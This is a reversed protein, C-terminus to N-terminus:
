AQFLQFLTKVVIYFTILLPVYERNIPLFYRKILKWCVMTHELWDSWIFANDFNDAVHNSLLKEMFVSNTKVPKIQNTASIKLSVGTLFFKRLAVILISFAHAEYSPLTKLNESPFLKSTYSGNSLFGTMVIYSELSLPLNLDVLFRRILTRLNPHPLSDIGLFNKILVVNLSLNKACPLERPHLRISDEGPLIVWESPLYKIPDFFSIHGLKIWQLIDCVYYDLNMIRFTLIILALAKSMTMKDVSIDSVHKLLPKLDEKKTLNKIVQSRNSFSSFQLHRQDVDELNEEPCISDSSARPSDHTINESLEEINILARRVKQFHLRLSSRLKKVPPGILEKNYLDVAMHDSEQLRMEPEYNEADSSGDGISDIDAMETDETKHVEILTNKELIDTGPFEPITCLSLRDVSQGVSGEVSGEVTEEMSNPLEASTDLNEKQKIKVWYFSRNISLDATAALPRPTYERYKPRAVKELGQHLLQIDRRTSTLHVKPVENGEVFAIESEALYTAWLGLLIRRFDSPLQLKETLDRSMNMLICNFAETTTWAVGTDMTKKEKGKRVETLGTGVFVDDRRELTAGMQQAQCVVCYFLGDIEEFRTAGCVVCSDM